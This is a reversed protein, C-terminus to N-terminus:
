NIGIANMIKIITVNLVTNFNVNHLNCAAMLYYSSESGAQAM